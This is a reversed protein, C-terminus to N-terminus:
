KLLRTRTCLIFLCITSFPNYYFSFILGRTGEKKQQKERWLCFREFKTITEKAKQKWIELYYAHIATKQNKM